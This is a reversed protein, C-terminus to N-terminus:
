NTGDNAAPQFVLGNWQADTSKYLKTGDPVTDYEITLTAVTVRTDPAFQEAYRFKMVTQEMYNVPQEVRIRYM